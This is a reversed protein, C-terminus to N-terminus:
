AARGKTTGYRAGRQKFCRRSFLVARLCGDLGADRTATEIQALVQSRDTGHIM